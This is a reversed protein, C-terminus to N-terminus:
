IKDMIFSYTGWNVRSHHLPFGLYKGLNESLLFGYIRGLDINIINNTNHSCFIKTNELSVKLDSYSCFNDLCGKIVKIQDHNDGAFLFLDDTFFLHSFMPGGRSFKIPKWDRSNIADNIMHGLWELCLVFLYLSLSDGQRIGKGM